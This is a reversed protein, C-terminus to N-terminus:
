CFRRRRSSPFSKLNLSKFPFASSIFGMRARELLRKAEAGLPGQGLVQVYLRSQSLTAPDVLEGASASADLAEVFRAALAIENANMVKGTQEAMTEFPLENCVHWM